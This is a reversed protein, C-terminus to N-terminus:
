FAGQKYMTKTGDVQDGPNKFAKGVCSNDKPLAPGYPLKSIM